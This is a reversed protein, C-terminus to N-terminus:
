EIVEDARALLTPSLQIGLAKAVKLNIVLEFKIPQEVPMDAPKAGRLIKDIYDGARRFMDPTNPGYSMLGGTEVYERFGHMTPMRASLALDNIRVRNTNALPYPIVYLAEARGKLAEHASAIDDASRMEPMVASLDLTKAAEQVQSQELVNGLNGVEALVAFRRLGPIAERLFELRKGIVDAAQTSLGTVNGGPRALSAVMGDGLPDAAVIFVIPIASTVRKAALAASGVSVILDVKLRVFEAAIEAYRGSHGGAWRYEIAISRGEVWGLQQLRQLFAATWHSWGSPSGAGLFGITPPKAAQQARIAFPWAAAAGSVVGLFQLRRM